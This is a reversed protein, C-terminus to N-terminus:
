ILKRELLLDVQSLLKEPFFDPSKKQIDLINDVLAKSKVTDETQIYAILLNAYEMWRTKASNLSFYKELCIILESYKRQKLLCLSLNIYTDDFHPDISIAENAIEEAKNFDGSFYYVKSLINLGAVPIHDFRGLFLDGVFLAADFADSEYCLKM